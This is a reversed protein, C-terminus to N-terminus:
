MSKLEVSPARFVDFEGYIYNGLRCGILHGLWVGYEKRPLGDKDLRTTSLANCNEKNYGREKYTDPYRPDQNHKAFSPLSVMFLLLVVGLIFLKM